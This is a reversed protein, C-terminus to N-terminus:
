AAIVGTSVGSRYATQGDQAVNLEADRRDWYALTRALDSRGHLRIEYQQPMVQSRRIQFRIGRRALSQAFTQAQKFQDFGLYCVDSAARFPSRVVLVRPSLYQGVRGPQFSFFQGVQM